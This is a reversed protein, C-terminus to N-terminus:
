IVTLMVATARVNTDATYLLLLWLTRFATCSSHTLKIMSVKAARARYTSQNIIWIQIVVSQSPLAVSAGVSFIRLRFGAGLLAESNVNVM